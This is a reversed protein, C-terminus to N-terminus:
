DGSESGFEHTRELTTDEVALQMNNQIEITCADANVMQSLCTVMNHKSQITEKVAVTYTLTATTSPTQLCTLPAGQGIQKQVIGIKHKHERMALNEFQSTDM